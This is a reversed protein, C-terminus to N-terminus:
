SVLQKVKTYTRDRHAARRKKKFESQSQGDALSRTDLAWPPAPEDNKGMTGASAWVTRSRVASIAPGSPGGCVECLYSPCESGRTELSEQRHGSDCAYERLVFAV